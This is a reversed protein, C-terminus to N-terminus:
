PKQKAPPRSGPSAGSKRAGHQALYAAFGWNESEKALQLPTKGSGDPTTVVLGAARLQDALAGTRAAQPGTALLHLANQGEDNVAKADAGLRLLEQALAVHGRRVATLFLTNGQDDQANPDAGHEVLLRVVQQVAVGAVTGSADHGAESPELSLVCKASFPLQTGGDAGAGSKLLLAVTRTSATDPAEPVPVLDLPMAHNHDEADSQAAKQLLLAVISERAYQAAVHLPTRGSRDRLLPFEPSSALLGVVAETDSRKVAALFREWLSLRSADPM